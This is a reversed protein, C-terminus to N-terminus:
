APAPCGAELLLLSPDDFLAPLWPLLLLPPVILRVIDRHNRAITLCCRRAPRAGGSLRRLSPRWSRSCCDQAGRRTEAADRLGVAHSRAAPDLAAPHGRGRHVASRCGGVSWAPLAYYAAAWARLPVASVVRRLAVYAGIGALPVAALLLLDVRDLRPQAAAPRSRSWPWTPPSDAASGIGVPHWGPQLHALRGGSFRPHPAACGGDAARRRGAGARSCRSCSWASAWCRDQGAALRRVLGRGLAAHGRGPRRRVARRRPARWGRGRGPGPRRAPQRDGAFHRWRVRAPGAPTPSGLGLRSPDPSPACASILQDPRLLVSFLAWLQRTRRALKGLLFGVVRAADGGDAAADRVAGRDAAPQGAAGPQRAAPRATAAASRPRARGVHIRPAITTTTVATSTRHRVRSRRGGCLSM